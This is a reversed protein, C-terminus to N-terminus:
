FNPYLWMTSAATSFCWQGNAAPGTQRPWRQTPIPFKSPNPSKKTSQAALVYGLGAALWLLWLMEVEMVKCRYFTRWRM